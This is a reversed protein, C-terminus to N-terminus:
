WLHKGTAKDYTCFHSRFNRTRWQSQKGYCHITACSVVPLEPVANRKEGGTQPLETCASATITQTLPSLGDWLRNWMSAMGTKQSPEGFRSPAALCPVANICPFSSLVTSTNAWFSPCWFCHAESSRQTHILNLASALISSKYCEFLWNAPLVLHKNPHSTRMERATVSPACLAVAPVATFRLSFEQVSQWFAEQQKWSTSHLKLIM